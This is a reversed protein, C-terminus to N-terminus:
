VAVDERVVLRLMQLSCYAAVCALRRTDHRVDGVRRIAACPIKSAAHHTHCRWVDDGSRIATGTVDNGRTRWVEADGDKRARQM